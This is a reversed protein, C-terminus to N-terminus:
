RGKPTVALAPLLFLCATLAVAGGLLKVITNTVIGM